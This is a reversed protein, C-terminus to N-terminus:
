EGSEVKKTMLFTNIIFFLVSKWLRHFSTYIRAQVSESSTGLNNVLLRPEAGGLITLKLGLNLLFM